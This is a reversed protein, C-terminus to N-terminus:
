QEKLFLICTNTNENYLKIICIIYLRKKYKINKYKKNKLNILSILIGFVKNYLNLNIWSILIRIEVVSM